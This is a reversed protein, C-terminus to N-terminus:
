CTTASNWYPYTRSYQAVPLGTGGLARAYWRGHILESRYDNGVAGQSTTYVRCTPDFETGTSNYLIIAGGRSAESCASSATNTGIVSKNYTYSSGMQTSTGVIPCANAATVSDLCTLKKLENEFSNNLDGTIPFYGDIYPVVTINLNTLPALSNGNQTAVNSNYPNATVTLNNKWNSIGEVNLYEAGFRYSNYQASTLAPAVGTSANCALIAQRILAKDNGDVGTHLGTQKPIVYHGDCRYIANELVPFATNLPGSGALQAWGSPGKFTGADGTTNRNNDVLINMVDDYDDKYRTTPAQMATAANATSYLPYAVSSCTVTDSQDIFSFLMFNETLTSAAGGWWGESGTYVQDINGWNGSTTLTVGAGRLAIIKHHGLYASAVGKTDYNATTFGCNSIPLIYLKGIYGGCSLSINAHVNIMANRIALGEVDTYADTDIFVVLDTDTHEPRFGRSISTTYEGSNESGIILKTTNSDTSNLQGSTQPLYSFQQKQAPIPNPTFTTTGSSANGVIYQLAQSGVTNGHAIQYDYNVRFSVEATSRPVWSTWESQSINVKNGLCSFYVQPVIVSSANTNTEAYVYKAVNNTSTIADTYRWGDGLTNTTTDLITTTVANTVLSKKPNNFDISVGTATIKGANCPTLNSSWITNNKLIAPTSSDSSLFGAIYIDGMSVGKNIVNDCLIPLFSGAVSYEVDTTTTKYSAALVKLDTCTSGTTSFSQQPCINSFDGGQTDGYSIQLLYAAGQSLGTFSGSWTSGPDNNVQSAILSGKANLLQIQASMTSPLYQANVTWSISTLGPTGMTLQPCIDNALITKSQTNACESGEGNTFCYEVKVNFSESAANLGSLNLMTGTASNQLQYIQHTFVQSSGSKDTVTINSGSSRNCDYFSKPISSGSFNINIQTAAGPNGIVNAFYDYTIDKCATPLVDAILSTVANRMDDITLWANTFSQALNQPSNVWGTIASMTGAGNLRTQSNLSSDQYGISSALDSKPGTGQQLGCFARELATVATSVDTLRGVTGVCTPVVQKETPNLRNRVETTELSVIRGEHNAVQGQLTVIDSTTQSIRAGLLTAYQQLPLARVITSTNPDQYQLVEPLTIPTNRVDEPGFDSQNALRAQVVNEIILNQLEIENNAIKAQQGQNNELGSQDIRALELVRRGSGDATSLNLLQESLQYIVDSISDGHCLDISRLDPGQWIVCDSSTNVCGSTKNSNLPNM